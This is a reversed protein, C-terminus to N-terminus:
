FYDEGERKVSDPGFLEGGREARRHLGRRNGGEEEVEGERAERERKPQLWDAM